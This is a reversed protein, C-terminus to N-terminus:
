DTATTNLSPLSSPSPPDVIVLAPGACYNFISQRQLVDGNVPVSSNTVYIMAPGQVGGLPCTTSNGSMPVTSSVNDDGTVINCFVTELNACSTNSLDLQLTSDSTYPSPNTIPLQSNTITPLPSNCNPSFPSVLTLVEAATMGLGFSQATNNGGLIANLATAHDAESAMIEAFLERTTPDNETTLAGLYAATGIVEAIRATEMATTVDGLASSFDFTCNLSSDSIKQLQKLHNQEANLFGGILEVANQGPSIGANQIDTANFASAVQNYFQSFALELATALVVNGDTSSPDQRPLVRAHPPRIPGASAITAVTAITYLISSRM